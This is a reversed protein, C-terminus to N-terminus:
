EYTLMFDVGVDASVACPASSRWVPGDSVLDPGEAGAYAVMWGHATEFAATGPVRSYGPYTAEAESADRLGFWWASWPPLFRHAGSGVGRRALVDLEMQLIRVDAMTAHEGLVVRGDKDEECEDLLAHLRRTLDDLMM